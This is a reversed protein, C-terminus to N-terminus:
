FDLPTRLISPNPKENNGKKNIFRYNNIHVKGEKTSKYMCISNEYDDVAYCSYRINDYACTFINDILEYGNMSKIFSIKENGEYVYGGSILRIAEKKSIYVEDVDSMVVHNLKALRTTGEIDIYSVLDDFSKEKSIYCTRIKKYAGHINDFKGIVCREDFVNTLNNDGADYTFTDFYPLQEYSSIPNTLSITMKMTVIKNDVIILDKDRFSQTKKFLYGKKVAYSIFMSITSDSGYVRDMFIEGTPLKWLLARGIIKGSKTPQYILMSCIDKNDVYINMYPQQKKHRMCSHSLSGVNYDYDYSEEDYFKRLKEGSIEKFLSFDKINSKILNVTKEIDYTDEDLKFRRLLKVIVRGIKAKVHKGDSTTYQMGNDVLCIGRISKKNAEENWYFSLKSATLTNINALISLFEDDYLKTEPNLTSTDITYILKCNYHLSTSSGDMKIVTHMSGGNHSYKKFVKGIARYDDDYWHTGKFESLNSDSQMEMISEGYLMRTHYDTLLKHIIM